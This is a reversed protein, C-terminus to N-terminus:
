AFFAVDTDSDVSLGEIKAIIDFDVAFLLVVDVHVDVSEGHTFTHFVAQCIGDFSGKSETFADDTDQKLVTVLQQQTLM